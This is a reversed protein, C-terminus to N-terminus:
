KKGATPLAFIVFHVFPLVLAVVMMPLAYPQRSFGPIAIPCLICAILMYVLIVMMVWFAIDNDKKEM